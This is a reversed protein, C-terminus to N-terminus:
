HGNSGLMHWAWDLRALKEVVDIEVILSRQRPQAQKQRADLHKGEEKKGYQMGFSQVSGHEQLTYNEECRVAKIVVLATL